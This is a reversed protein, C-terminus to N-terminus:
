YLANKKVGLKVVFDHEENIIENAYILSNPHLYDDSDMFLIYEGTAEKIGINRYYQPNSSINSELVKHNFNINKIEDHLNSDGDHIFLVEFDKFTQNNLSDLCDNFMKADTEKYPMVISYQLSNEERFHEGLVLSCLKRM